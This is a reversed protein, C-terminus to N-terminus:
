TARAERAALPILAVVSVVALGALVRYVASWGFAEAAWTTVFGQAIAGVSGMGNIIGAATASADPGGLDQAAAGSVLSDPGFLCM